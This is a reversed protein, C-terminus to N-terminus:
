IVTLYHTRLGLLFFIKNDQYRMAMDEDGFSASDVLWSSTSITPAVLKDGRGTAEEVEDVELTCPDARLGNVVRPLTDELRVLTDLLTKCFVRKELRWALALM